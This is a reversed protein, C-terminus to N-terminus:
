EDTSTIREVERWRRCPSADERGEGGWEKEGKSSFDDGTAKRVFPLLSTWGRHRKETSCSGGKRAREVKVGREMVKGVLVAAHDRSGIAM